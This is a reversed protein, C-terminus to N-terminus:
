RPNNRCKRRLLCPSKQRYQPRAPSPRLSRLSLSLPNPEQKGVPDRGGPKHREVEGPREHAQPGTSLQSPRKKVRHVELSLDAVLQKLDPIANGPSLDVFRSVANIVQSEISTVVGTTGVTGSVRAIVPEKLELAGRVDALGANVTKQAQDSTFIGTSISAAAFFSAVLVCAILVIAIELSNMGKSDLFIRRVM